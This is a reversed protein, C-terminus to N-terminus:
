HWKILKNPNFTVGLKAEREFDRFILVEVLHGKEREVKSLEYIQRLIM